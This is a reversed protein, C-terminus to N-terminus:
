YFRVQQSIERAALKVQQALGGMDKWVSQGTNGIAAVGARVIGQADTIPLAIASLGLIQEDFSLSYGRKRILELEKLLAAMSTITKPTIAPLGSEGFLERVHEQPLHALLLKGIATAYALYETGTDVDADPFEGGSIRNIVMVRNKDLVGVVADLGTNDRLAVLVPEAVRRFDFRRLAARSIALVKLGIEYRGTAPDRVLFGERELRGLVYSCSSTALGLEDSVEKNSLGNRRQGIMELIRLGRELSNSPVERPSSQAM